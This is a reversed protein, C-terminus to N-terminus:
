TVNAQATVTRRVDESLPKEYATTVDGNRSLKSFSPLTAECCCFLAASLLGEVIAKSDADSKAKRDTRETILFM